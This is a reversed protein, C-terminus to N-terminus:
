NPIRLVKYGAGGSDAAGVTVREFVGNDVDYLILHTDGSTGSYSEKGIKAIAEELSYGNVILKNLKNFM